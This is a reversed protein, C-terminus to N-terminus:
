TTEEKPRRCPDLGDVRGINEIVRNLLALLDRVEQETMDRTILRETEQFRRLVQQHVELAKDTARIRKKRRDGRESEYIIFDKAELRQLIGSVTPHSLGFHKGIDGPYVSEERRRILYGLVRGQSSTLEMDELDLTCKRDLANSIRKIRPAIAQENPLM